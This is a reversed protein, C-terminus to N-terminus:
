EKVVRLTKEASGSQVRVIYMGKALSELNLAATNANIASSQVQQGVLNYVAITDITSNNSITLVNKVPNPFSKFGNFISEGAGMATDIHVTVALRQVSEIGYVTQSAYYTAGDVLMTALPLPTDTDATNPPGAQGPNDYWQINEGEAELDALIDGNEFQQEDDGDPAPTEYDSPLVIVEIEGITNCGGDIHELRFYLTASATFYAEPASISPAGTEANIESTYYTIEFSEPDLGDLIAAEQITLDVLASGDIDDDNNDFVVVPGATGAFPQPAAVIDFSVVDHSEYFNSSLRAYITQSYAIINTYETPNNIANVNNEADLMTEFYAITFDEPNQGDLVESNNESLNFATIGDLNLDCAYQTDPTGAFTVYNEGSVNISEIFLASDFVTDNRDAIAFKLHYMHGPILNAYATMQVTRGNFNTATPTSGQTNYEAFYQPNMSPCLNNYANNRVTMVNVPLTTGPIVAINESAGTSIDTLLITFADSYVCQYMGYEEAAFVYDIEIQGSVATFDFELKTANMATITGTGVQEMVALVDGDGQWGNAGASQVNANPGPALSVDGTSLIIGNELPFAGGGNTFYGLGNVSGFNTGTSSSINTATIGTGALLVDTILQQPTYQTGSTTIPTQAMVLLPLLTIFYPLKIQM